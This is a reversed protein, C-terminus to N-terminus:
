EKLLKIYELKKKMKKKRRYRLFLYIIIMVLVIVLIAVVSAIIVTQSSAYTTNVANTNTKLALTTAEKTATKGVTKATNEAQSVMTEVNEKIANIISNGSSSHNTSVFKNLFFNCFNPDTFAGRTMCSGNFKNYIATTINSVDTYSTANFVLGLEKVGQTSLGFDTLLGDMVADIGAQAGEALGKAAGEAIAEKTAAALAAAKWGTYVIGSILGWGPTVGGGLVGGCKLCTKEVKDAVSKECVCTPIDNISIDTQLTVFKEALEKELKDKLIIKQIEKDCREKCKQRTTKM